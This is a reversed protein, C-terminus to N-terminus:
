EVSATNCIKCNPSSPMWFYIMKTFDENREDENDVTYTVSVSVYVVKLSTIPCVTLHSAHADIQQVTFAVTLTTDVHQSWHTSLIPVWTMERIGSDNAFAAACIQIHDSPLQM